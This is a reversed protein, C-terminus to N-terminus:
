TYIDEYLWQYLLPLAPAYVHSAGAANQSRISFDYIMQLVLVLPKEYFPQSFAELVFLEITQAFTASM